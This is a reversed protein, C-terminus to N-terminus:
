RRQKVIRNYAEHSGIWVWLVTEDELNGIARYRDGINVSYANKGATPVPSFHLSKHRPDKQFLVYAEEAQRQVSAPLADFLARFQKTRISRFM